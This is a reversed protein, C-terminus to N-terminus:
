LDLAILDLAIQEYKFVNGISFRFYFQLAVLSCFTVFHWLEINADIIETEFFSILIM